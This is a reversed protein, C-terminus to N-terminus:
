LLLQLRFGIVFCEDLQPRLKGTNHLHAGREHQNAQKTIVYFQVACNISVVRNPKVFQLSCIVTMYVM